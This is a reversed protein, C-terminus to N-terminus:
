RHRAAGAIPKVSNCCQGANFYIGFVAADLAADWDCDAFVIQPNKGGLEMSVKKLTGAAKAVAGKGILTSGTFSVMDVAPHQVMLDGVVSGKGVLINVVGPPIGAEQLIEGLLVTTGSTVEAPKVVTTCGAALAFPLKQSVILFPFNWPTIVSVVGIPDRLM